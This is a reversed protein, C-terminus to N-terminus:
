RGDDDYIEERRFTPNAPWDSWTFIKLRLPLKPVKESPASDAREDLILVAPYDGPPINLPDRAIVRLEGGPAVSVPVEFTRV